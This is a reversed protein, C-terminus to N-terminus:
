LMSAGNMWSLVFDAVFVLFNIFALICAIIWEPRHCVLNIRPGNPPYCAAFYAEVFGAVLWFFCGAATLLGDVKKWVQLNSAFCSTIGLVLSFFSFSVSIGLVLGQWETNTRIVFDHFSNGKMPGLVLGIVAVGLIVQVAKAALRAYLPYNRNNLANKPHMTSPPYTTYSPAYFPRLRRLTMTQQQQSRHGGGGGGVGVEGYYNRNYPTFRDDGGGGGGGFDTEQYRGVIPPERKKRYMPLPKKAPGSYAKYQRRDFAEASVGRQQQQHGRRSEAGLTGMTPATSRPRSPATRSRRPPSPAPQPYPRYAGSAGPYPGYAGPYASSQQYNYHSYNPYGYYPYQHQQHQQSTDGYTPDIYGNQGYPEHLYAPNYVGGMYYAGNIPHGLPEQGYDYAFHQQYLSVDRFASAPIIKVTGAGYPYEM